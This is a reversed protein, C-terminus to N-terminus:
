PRNLLNAPAYQDTLVAASVDWDVRDTIFKPFAALAVGYATLESSLTNARQELTEKTPLDGSRAGLIIRNGSTPLRM